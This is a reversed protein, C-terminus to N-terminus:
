DFNVRPDVLKYTLDSIIGIILGILTFFYLTAFMVPYDRSLVSEYGLLGIGDLSFIIEILMAGTFLIGIFAAPIGAIVIMMANRFIHKYLVKKDDLGKAYATFVYQKNIEEIFSNKVFFTLSAFGGITMAVLPLTLHWFYDVIKTFFGLEAFNDSVLGRLPFINLFNDSAFLIILLIAFLFGPIAHGISVFFSTYVDFKSGDNLAKKIGLPISILYVLLTTWLGLSISVPLKELILDVVKKDQYFSEGFDFILFKKLMIFFREWFGKDFGYLKNIKEAIEQDIASYNSNSEIQNIDSLNIGDSIGSFSAVEGMEGVKNMQAVFKEVPGGPAIQIISFNILM